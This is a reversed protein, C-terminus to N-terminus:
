NLKRGFCSHHVKTIYRTYQILHLNNEKNAIRCDVGLCGRDFEIQWDCWFWVLVNRGRSSPVTLFNFWGSVLLPSDALLHYQIIHTPAPRALSLSHHHSHSPLWKAVLNNLNWKVTLIAVKMLFLM